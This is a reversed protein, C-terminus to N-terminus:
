LFDGTNCSAIKITKIKVFDKYVSISYPKTHTGENTLLNNVYINTSYIRNM